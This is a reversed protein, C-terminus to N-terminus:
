PDFGFSGSFAPFNRTQVGNAATGVYSPMGPKAYVTVTGGQMQQIRGAHVAATCISSDDTYVGTGWVSGLTGGPPCTHVFPVGIQGRHSRANQTWPDPPQGNGQGVNIQVGGINIGNGNLGVTPVPIATLGPAPGGVITFTAPYAQYNRSAVGGRITGAYMPMGPAIQIQVVGGGALSIRGSHVAATCISSDTTYMDTGWISGPSGGPPCQMNLIAGVQTRYATANTNWLIPMAPPATTRKKCAVLPTALAAFLLAARRAAIMQSTIM